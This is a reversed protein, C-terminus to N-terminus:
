LTEPEETQGDLDDVSLQTVRVLATSDLRVEVHDEYPIVFERQDQATTTHVLYVSIM